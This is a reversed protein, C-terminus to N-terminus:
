TETTKRWGLPHDPSRATTSSRAGLILILRAVLYRSLTIPQLLVVRGKRLPPLFVLCTVRQGLDRSTTHRATAPALIGSHQIAWLHRARDKRIKCGDHGGVDLHLTRGGRFGFRSPNALCWPCRASADSISVWFSQDLFLSGAERRHLQFHRQRKMILSWRLARRAQYWRLKYCEEKRLSQARIRPSALVFVPRTSNSVLGLGSLCTFFPSLPFVVFM